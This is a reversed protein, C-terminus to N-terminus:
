SYKLNEERLRKKFWASFSKANERPKNQPNPLPGHLSTYLKQEQESPRRWRIVRDVWMDVEKDPLSPYNAAIYISLVTMTDTAFNVDDIVYNPVFGFNAEIQSRVTTLQDNVAINLPLTEVVNEFHILAKRPDATRTRPNKEFEELYSRVKERFETMLTAYTNIFRLCSLYRSADESPNQQLWSEASSYSPVVALVPLESQKKASAISLINNGSTNKYKAIETAFDKTTKDLIGLSTMKDIAEKLQNNNLKSMYDYKINNAMRFATGGIIELSTKDDQNEVELGTVTGLGDGGFQRNKDYTPVLNNRISEEDLLGSIKDIDPGLAYVFYDAFRSGGGTQVIIPKQGEEGANPNDIAKDAYKKIVESIKSKNGKIVEDYEYEVYENDTGPLLAPRQSGTVWIITFGQRMSTMVSDIGANGGGVVITIEKPDDVGEKIQKAKKQFEDMSIVRGVAQGEEQKAPKKHPGIGLGVVVKQAYFKVGSAIEVEYFKENDDGEIKAVNKIKTNKRHIVYKNIVEEVVESFDGRPALEEKGLGVEERLATIMHMPHNIVGPGREEKWPQTEGIVITSYKDINNNSALYYAAAAGAGLIALEFTLGPNPSKSFYENRKTDQEKLEKQSDEVETEVLLPKNLHKKIEYYLLLLHQDSNLDFTGYDIKSYSLRSLANFLKGFFEKEFINTVIEQEEKNFLIERREYIKEKLADKVKHIMWEDPNKYEVKHQISTSNTLKSKLNKFKQLISVPQKKSQVQNQVHNSLAKAGMVDAEKELRHDDNIYINKKFQLTPKVRGQKQQVVHWGEHALHKEQGRGLFIENGQAYALAGVSQPKPSNYHVKVDSLSIGSLQELGGQLKEPLSDKKQITQVESNLNSQTKQITRQVVRDVKSQSYSGQSFIQSVFQNGMTKQLQMTDQHDLSHPSFHAQEIIDVSHAKHTTHTTKKQLSTQQKIKKNSEKYQNGM